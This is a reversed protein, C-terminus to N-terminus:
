PKPPLGAERLLELEEPLLDAAVVQAVRAQAKEPAKTGALALAHYLALDARQLVEAPLKELATLAEGARGRRLLSLAYTSTITADGPHAAYLEEALRHARDPTAGLLLSYFAFNNKAAESAPYAKAMAESVQRLMRADKRGAARRFLEPLTWASHQLGTKSVRWLLEEYEVGCEPWTRVAEALLRTTKGDALAVITAARWAKGFAAEDRRGRAARAQLALRLFELERWSGEAVLADLKEWAAQASYAEARILKETFPDRRLAENGAIWPEIRDGLGSQRLWVAIRGLAHPDAGAQTTLEALLAEAREPQAQAALQARVLWDPFNARKEAIIAEAMELARPEDKRRLAADRLGRLAELRVSKDTALATLEQETAATATGNFVQALALILRGVVNARDRELLARAAEEAVPFDGRAAPIRARLELVEPAEGLAQKLDREVKEAIEIRGLAIALQALQRMNERDGPDLDAIRVRLLLVSELNREPLVSLLARTAAVSSRDLALARMAAARAAEGAGSRALAEARSVYRHVRWKTWLGTQVAVFAGVAVVVVVGVVLLIRKAQNSLMAGVSTSSRPGALRPQSLYPGSDGATRLSRAIRPAARHPNLRGGGGGAGDEIGRGVKAAPGGPFGSGSGQSM